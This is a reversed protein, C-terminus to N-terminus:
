GAPRQLETTNLPLTRGDDAVLWGGVPTGDAVLVYGTAPGVDYTLVHAERGWWPEFDLGAARSATLYGRWTPTELIGILVRVEALAEHQTWGHDELVATPDSFCAAAGVVLLVAVLALRAVTM